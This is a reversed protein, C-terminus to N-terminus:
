PAMIITDMMSADVKAESLLSVVFALRQYAIAEYPHSLLSRGSIQKPNPNKMRGSDNISRADNLITCHLFHHM